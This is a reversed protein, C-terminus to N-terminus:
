CVLTRSSRYKSPGAAVRILAIQAFRNASFLEIKMVNTRSARIAEFRSLCPIQMAMGELLMM